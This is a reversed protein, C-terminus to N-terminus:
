VKTSSKVETNKVKRIHRYIRECGVCKIGKLKCRGSIQESCGRDVNDECAPMDKKAFMIFKPKGCNRRLERNDKGIIKAIQNNRFGQQKMM